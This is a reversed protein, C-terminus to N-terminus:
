LFWLVPTHKKLTRLSISAVPAKRVVAATAGSISVPVVGISAVTSVAITLATVRM